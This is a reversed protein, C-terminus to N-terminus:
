SDSYENYESQTSEREEIRKLTMHIEEWSHKKDLRMLYRELMDRLCEEDTENNTFIEDIIDEDLSLAEGLDKWRFVVGMSILTALLHELGFPVPTQEPPAPEIESTFLFPLQDCLPLYFMDQQGM